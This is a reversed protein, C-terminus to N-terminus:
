FYFVDNLHTCVWSQISFALNTHGKQEKLGLLCYRPTTPFWGPDNAWGWEGMAVLNRQTQWLNAECHGRVRITDM